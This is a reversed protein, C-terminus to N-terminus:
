GCCRRSLLMAQGVPPPPPEKRNSGCDRHAPSGGTLRWKGDSRRRDAFRRRKNRAGTVCVSVFCIRSDRMMRRPPTTAFTTTRGGTASFSEHATGLRIMRRGIEAICCSALPRMGETEAAPARATPQLLRVRCHTPSCYLKSRTCFKATSCDTGQRTLWAPSTMRPEDAISADAKAMEGESRGNLLEKLGFGLKDRFIGDTRSRTRQM